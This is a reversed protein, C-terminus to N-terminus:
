RIVAFRGDVHHQVRNSPRGQANWSQELVHLRWQDENMREVVLATSCRTGYAQDPTEIFIRGLRREWEQPVGTRPLEDDSPQHRDVLLDILSDLLAEPSGDATSDGARLPAMARAVGQKLRTLKPWPTDFAANSLGHLGPPLPDLHGHRNSTWHAHAHAVDLALLNYGNHELAALSRRMEPAAHSGQLWLPIIHGRSALGDRNHGPERVNTLLGIRGQRSIGLWTGGAQLDRGALTHGDPWWDMAASARHHFEDRNAALVLPFREHLQWAMAMLCM